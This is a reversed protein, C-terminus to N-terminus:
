VSAEARETIGSKIKEEKTEGSRDRTNSEQPTGRMRGKDQLRTKSLGYPPTTRTQTRGREEVNRLQDSKQLNHLWLGHQQLSKVGTVSCDFLKDTDALRKASESVNTRLTDTGKGPDTPDLEQDSIFESTPASVMATKKRPENQGQSSFRSTGSAGTFQFKDIRLRCDEEFYFPPDVLRHTQQNTEEELRYWERRIDRMQATQRQEMLKMEAELKMRQERALLMEDEEKQAVMQAEIEAQRRKELLLQQQHRRARLTKDKLLQAQHEQERDLLKNCQEDSMRSIQEDSLTEFTEGALWIKNFETAPMLVTRRPKGHKRPTAAPANAGAGQGEGIQGEPASEQGHPIEARKDGKGEESLLPALNLDDDGEPAKSYQPETHTDSSKTRPKTKKRHKTEPGLVPDETPAFYDVFDDLEGRNETRGLRDFDRYSEPQSTSRKKM